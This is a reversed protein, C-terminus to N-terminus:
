PATAVLTPTISGAAFNSVLPNLGDFAADRARVVGAIGLVYPTGPSPFASGPIEVTTVEDRSRIWDVYDSATEPRSDYTFAVNGEADSTAVVAVYNNFGQGTLDITLGQGAPHLDTPEPAGDLIPAPPAVITVDRVTGGDEVALRYTSGVVYVLDPDISSDVEYLGSGLSDLDATFDGRAIAVRDADSWLNASVNDLSRARALFASATAAAGIDVDVEPPMGEEDLGLLLGEAAATSFYDDINSCGTLPLAAILLFLLPLLRM